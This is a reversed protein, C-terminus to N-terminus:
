CRIGMADVILQRVRVAHRSFDHRALDDITVSSPYETKIIELLRGELTETWGQGPNAPALDGTLRPLRLRLCAPGGGGAMSQGLDVYEARSFVGDGCWRQVLRKTVENERVQVPAILLRDGPDDARTVIQSNFLYTGIADDISLVQDPVEIRVLEGGTTQQFRRELKLLTEEHDVFAMEHHIMLEQHSTAVVDNHFAGADIAAPHQKFFFTDEPRLRHRRAIAEVSARTQRPYFTGPLPPQDGFVFVNLGVKMDASSLRMHNAAGEDRMATGGDLPPFVHDTKGLVGVVDRETATSEISRHLSSSLNAITVNVGRAATDDGNFDISDVMPTVTAANATWSSSCSMAASLLEPSQDRACKLIDADSGTFGLSRLWDFAPRIQPPLIWQAAGFQHVMRMKMLGQIAASAPHSVTGAHSHSALNGVGLGGFHHTPGFLRDVQVECYKGDLSSEWQRKGPTM